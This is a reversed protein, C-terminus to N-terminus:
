DDIEELTLNYRKLMKQSTSYCLKWDFWEHEKIVGNTRHDPYKAFFKESSMGYKTEYTRIHKLENKAAAEPSRNDQHKLFRGRKDEADFGPFPPKLTIKRQM